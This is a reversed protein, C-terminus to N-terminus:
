IRADITKGVHAQLRTCGSNPLSRTSIVPRPYTVIVTMLVKRVVYEYAAIAMFAVRLHDAATPIGQNPDIDRPPIAVGDMTVM